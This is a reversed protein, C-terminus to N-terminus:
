KMVGSVARYSGLVSIIGSLLTLWLFL